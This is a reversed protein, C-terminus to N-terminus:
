GAPRRAAQPDGGRAAGQVGAVAVAARVGPQVGLVEAGPVRLRRAGHPRVANPVDASQPAHLHYNKGGTEGVVRPYGATSARRAVGERSARRVAVRFVATSGTFHLAPSSRPPRARHAHDLEAADGPVFQVVNPPLGAELSSRLLPALQLGRGFASPKWVVVNGMLAPACPWTAASPPSTSPRSPTSSARSRATSSGTGCARRLPAGAAARLPGRAYRSTSACSTAGARGGRRDGGAVREQGAGGDDGGDRRLPVQGLDPGRGQPVRGSPGRVADDGM